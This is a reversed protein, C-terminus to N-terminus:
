TINRIDLVGTLVPTKEPASYTIRREGELPMM